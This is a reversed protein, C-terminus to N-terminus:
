DMDVGSVMQFAIRCCGMSVTDCTRKDKESVVVVARAVVWMILLSREKITRLRRHARTATRVTWKLAKGKVYNTVPDNVEIRDIRRYQLLTVLAASEDHLHGGEKRRCGQTRSASQIDIASRRAWEHGTERTEIGFSKDM